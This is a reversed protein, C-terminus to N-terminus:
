SAAPAKAGVKGGWQWGRWGFKRQVCVEWGCSWAFVWLGQPLSSPDRPPPPM